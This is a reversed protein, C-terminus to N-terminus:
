NIIILFNNIYNLIKIFDFECIESIMIRKRLSNIKFIIVKKNKLIIIKNLIKRELLTKKNIRDKEMFDM